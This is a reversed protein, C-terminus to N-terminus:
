LVEKWYAWSRIFMRDSLRDFHRVPSKSNQYFPSELSAPKSLSLRRYNSLSLRRENSSSLSRYNSFALCSSFALHWFGLGL